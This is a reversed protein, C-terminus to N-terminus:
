GTDGHLCLILRLLDILWVRGDLKYLSHTRGLSVDQSLESDTGDAVQKFVVRSVMDKGRDRLLDLADLGVLRDRDHACEFGGFTLAVPSRGRECRTQCIVCARTSNDPEM